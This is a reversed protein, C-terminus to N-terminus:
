YTNFFLMAAAVVTITITIVTIIDERIKSSANMYMSWFVLFICVVHIVCVRFAPALLPASALCGLCRIPTLTSPSSM